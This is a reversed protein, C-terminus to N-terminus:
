LLVPERVLSVGFLDDVTQVILSETALIDAQTAISKAHNTLVLAQNQHTLIPFIGKGKLGAKDILWGAPLKIESDSVAYSPLDAFRAKLTDFKGKDIVPNTFFSGCNPLVTPCPLKQQRIKIVAHMVDLPTPAKNGRKTALVCATQALDGYNTLIRNPDKHLRFVVHTILYANHNANQHDTAQAFTNKFVSQRYGFRCDKSDFVLLRGTALETAVVQVIRDSVQAGYAGINQVPCAGVLGPILALNELGYWGKTTADVVFSHWDVGAAVKLTINDCTEDLIEIDQFKPLLVCARLQSPLLVNSGSSLVFLPLHRDHAYAIAQVIDTLNRLEIAVDATCALSMTNHCSLDYGHHVIPRLPKNQISATM